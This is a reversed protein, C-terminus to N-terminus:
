PLTQPRVPPGHFIDSDTRLRVSDPKKEVAPNHKAFPDPHVLSHGPSETRRLIVVATGNGPPHCFLRPFDGVPHDQRLDPYNKGQPQLSDRKLFGRVRFINM